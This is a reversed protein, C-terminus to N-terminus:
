QEELAKLEFYGWAAYKPHCTRVEAVAFYVNKEPYIMNQAM